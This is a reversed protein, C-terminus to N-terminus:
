ISGNRVIATLSEAPTSKAFHTPKLYSGTGTLRTVESESTCILNAPVFPLNKQEGVGNTRLGFLKM